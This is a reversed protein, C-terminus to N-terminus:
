DAKSCSPGSCYEKWLCQLIELTHCKVMIILGGQMVTVVPLDLVGKLYNQLHSPIDKTAIKDARTVARTTKFFTKSMESVLIQEVKEQEAPDWQKTDKLTVRDVEILIKITVNGSFTIM